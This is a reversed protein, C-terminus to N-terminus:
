RAAECDVCWGHIAMHTVDARFGRERQMLAVLDQAAASPMQDIAGCGLCVLHVHDAHAALHYTPARHDLHTHSVFGLEELADLSRYITSSPLDPGGDTAVAAAVADPTAHGLHTLAAIIRRRAATVRMGKARMVEILDAM